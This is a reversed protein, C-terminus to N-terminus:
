YDPTRYSLDMFRTTATDFRMPVVGV